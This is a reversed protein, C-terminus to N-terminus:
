PPPISRSRGSGSGARAPALVSALVGLAAPAVLAAIIVRLGRATHRDAPM